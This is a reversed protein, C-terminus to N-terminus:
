RPLPIRWTALQIEVVDFHYQRLAATTNALHRTINRSHRLSIAALAATTNFGQPKLPIKNASRIFNYSFSQSAICSDDQSLLVARCYLQRRAVIFSSQLIVTTRRCYFQSAIVSDGQSLLVAFCYCQRKAVIGSSRLVVGVVDSYFQAAIFGGIVKEDNKGFFCRIIRNPATRNNRSKM